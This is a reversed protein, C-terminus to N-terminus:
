ERFGDAVSDGRFQMTPNPYPRCAPFSLFCRDDSIPTLIVNGDDLKFNVIVANEAPYIHADFSFRGFSYERLEYGEAVYSEIQLATSAAPGAIALTMFTAVLASVVVRHEAKTVARSLRALAIALPILGLVLLPGWVFRPDPATFFWVVISALAPISLLVLGRVGVRSRSKRNRRKATSALIAGVIVSAILSGFAFQIAWDTASRTLWPAFWSWSNLVVEPSGGPERAWSLIWDRSGSPDPVRWDVPLPLVTAPYFLWGSLLYDRVSMGIGILAGLASGIVLLVRHRSFYKRNRPSRWAHAILVIVVLGTFIWLQTRVTAAVVAVLTAVTGWVVNRKWFADLLYAATVVVLIMSITDPTPSTILMGPTGLLFPLSAAAALLMLITGPSNPTRRLEFLRLSLDIVFLFVFLGVLLRFAEIGWPTAALMASFLSSTTNTGLRSHLNALGPITPYEASYQIANIHYLGSDYNEIPGAFSHAFLLVTIVLM